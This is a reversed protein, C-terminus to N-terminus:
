CRDRTATLVNPISAVWEWGRILAPRPLLGRGHYQGEALVYRALKDTHLEGHRTPGNTRRWRAM